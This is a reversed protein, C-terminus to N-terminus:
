SKPHRFASNSRRRREIPPRRNVTRKATKKITRKADKRASERM